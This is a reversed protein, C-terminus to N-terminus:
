SESATNLVLQIQAVISLAIQEPTHTGLNLGIPAYLKNKLDNLSLQANQLVKDRRSMSGLLGLYPIDFQNFYTLYQVDRQISHTVLLVADFNKILNENSALQKLDIKNLNISNFHSFADLRNQRHDLIYGHWNMFEILQCIPIIDQGAGVIAIKLPPILDIQCYDKQNLVTDSELNQNSSKTIGNSLYLYEAFYNSLTNINIFIKSSHAQEIMPCFLSFPQYKNKTDLIQLLVQICGDCGAGLGFISDDSLDYEIIKSIADTFVSEAHEAIDSELCGGSILGYTNLHSDVLMMAGKKKYSSGQISVLTALVLPKKDTKFKLFVNWLPTIQDLM